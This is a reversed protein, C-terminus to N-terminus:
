LWMGQREHAECLTAWWGGREARRGPTGCQQCTWESAEEAQRVLAAVQPGFRGAGQVAVRLRGREEALGVLLNAGEEPPLLRALGKGLEEILARWGPSPPFPLHPPRPRPRPGRVHEHRGGGM